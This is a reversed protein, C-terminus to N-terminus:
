TAIGLPLKLRRSFNRYQFGDCNQLIKNHSKKAVTLVKFCFGMPSTSVLRGRTVGSRLRFVTEIGEDLRVM